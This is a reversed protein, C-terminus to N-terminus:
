MFFAIIRRVILITWRIPNLLYTAYVFPNDWKLKFFSAMTRKPPFLLDILLIGKLRPMWKKQYVFPALLKYLRTCIFWSSVLDHFCGLHITVCLRQGSTCQGNLDTIIHEPVELDLLRRSLKLSFLVFSSVGLQGSIMLVRDWDIGQQILDAIDLANRMVFQNSYPARKLATHLCMLLLLDENCLVFSRLKENWLRKDWFININNLLGDLDFEYVRSREFFNTHLELLLANKKNYYQFQNNWDMQLAINKKEEKRVLPNMIDGVYNYDVLTVLKNAALLDKERVLIDIDGVTRLGTFDLSLGKILVCEIGHDALATQIRTCEKLIMQNLLVTNLVAEKAAASIESKMPEPLHYKVLESLVVPKVLHKDVKSLFRGLNIKSNQLINEILAINKRKKCLEVILIDEIKM